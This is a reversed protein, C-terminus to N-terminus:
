SNFNYPYIYRYGGAERYINLMSAYKNKLDNLVTRSIISCFGKFFFTDNKITSENTFATNDASPRERVENHLGPQEPVRLSSGTDTQRQTQRQTQRSHKLESATSCRTM